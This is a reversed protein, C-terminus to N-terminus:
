LEKVATATHPLKVLSQWIFRPHLPSTFAMEDKVSLSDTFDRILTSSDDLGVSRHRLVQDRGGPNGSWQTHQPTLQCWAQSM